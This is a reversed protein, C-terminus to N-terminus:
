FAESRQRGTSSGSARCLPPLCSPQCEQEGSVTRNGAADVLAVAIRTAAAPSTFEATGGLPCPVRLSSRSVASGSRRWSVDTPWSRSAMSRRRRSRLLRRASTGGSTARVVALVGADSIMVSPSSGRVTVVAPSTRRLGCTACSMSMEFTLSGASLGEFSRSGSPSGFVWDRHRPRRSSRRCGNRAFPMHSRSNRQPHSPAGFSKLEVRSRCPREAAFTWRPVVPRARVGDLEGFGFDACGIVSGTVAGAGVSFVIWASTGTGRGAGCSVVDYAGQAAATPAAAALAMASTLAIVIARMGRM